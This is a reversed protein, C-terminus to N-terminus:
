VRDSRRSAWINTRRLDEQSNELKTAPGGNIQREIHHTKFLQDGKTMANIRKNWSHRLFQHVM